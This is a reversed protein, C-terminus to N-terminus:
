RQPQGNVARTMPTYTRQNEQSLDGYYIFRAVAMLREHRGQTPAKEDTDLGKVVRFATLVADRRHWHGVDVAVVREPVKIRELASM